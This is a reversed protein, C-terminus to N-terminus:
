FFNLLVNARLNYSRVLGASYTKLLSIMSKDVRDRRLQDLPLNDEDIDGVGETPISPEETSLALHARASTFTTGDEWKVAWTNGGKSETVIGHLFTRGAHNTPVRTAGCNTGFDAGFSSAGIHM